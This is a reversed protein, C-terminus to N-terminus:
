KKPCNKGQNGHGQCGQPQSNGDGAKNKCCGSGANAKCCGAAMGCKMGGSGQGQCNKHYGQGKSNSQHIDFLVKQDATLLKRVDQKFANHKKALEAKLAFLEDYAKNVAAMDVNDGTSITKIHAQKEGILNKTNTSEKMLTLKLADIQKQQEPTLDTLFGMAKGGKCMGPTTANDQQPGGQAFLNSSIVSAMFFALMVIVNIKTTKM